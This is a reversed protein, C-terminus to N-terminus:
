KRGYEKKAEELTLVRGGREAFRKLAKNETKLKADAVIATDIHPLINKDIEGACRVDLTEDPFLADLWFRATEKRRDHIFLICEAGSKRNRAAAARPAVGTLFGIAQACYALTSESKEPHPCSLFIKGKGVRGAAFAGKGRMAKVPKASCANILWGNYTGLIEVEADEVPEGTVLAPGGWYLTTWKAPRGPFFKRGAETLAIRAEGWGRYREPADDKFPVLGIRRYEPEKRATQTALFAGACLGYYSGGGRVYREIEACGDDGLAARQARCSGGPQLLMDFGELRGARVDAADLFEIDFRGDLALMQVISYNCGGKDTYVAVKVRKGGSAVAPTCADEVTKGSKWLDLREKGYIRDLPNSGATEPVIVRDVHRLEGNGIAERNLAVIDYKGEKLMAAIANATEVGFSDDCLIGAVGMGRRRQPFEWKLERGCVYRFAGALIDHDDIDYEPHVAFAFVKGKGYTGAVAAAQGAFSTRAKDSQNVDSAYTAVVEIEAGDVPLSPVPVPGQSYRIRRTAKKIGALAEARSNFSVLMDGHGGSDKSFKFPVIGLMDKHHSASEMVLCCGACTGIYGGGNKVFARVKDRGEAGLMQAEEGSWGGPVVLVDAADLAGARITAGDVAAFRAGEALSVIEIWRLAGINRAGRDVFVAVRVPEQAKEAAPALTTFLEHEAAQLPLACAAAAAAAFVLLKVSSCKMTM